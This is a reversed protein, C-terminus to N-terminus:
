QAKEKKRRIRAVIKSAGLNKMGLALLLKGFPHRSEAAVEVIEIGRSKAAELTAITHSISGLVGNAVLITRWGERAVFDAVTMTGTLPVLLGGVGEVFVLERKQACKRVAASIADLDVTRGVLQAALLPSSPYAFIQPATLGAVDEPFCGVGMIRRHLALDESFGTNGTQVLKMTIADRGAALARRALVGTAVSKGVGTGIGSVFLIEGM